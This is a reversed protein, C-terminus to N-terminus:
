SCRMMGEEVAEEEEEEVVVLTGKGVSNNSDGVSRGPM